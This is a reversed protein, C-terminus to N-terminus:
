IIFLGLKMAIPIKDRLRVLKMVDQHFGDIEKVKICNVPKAHSKSNANVVEKKCGLIRFYSTLKFTSPIVFLCFLQLCKQKLKSGLM